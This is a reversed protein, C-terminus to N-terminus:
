EEVIALVDGASRRETNSMRRRYTFTTGDPRRAMETEHTREDVYPVDAMLDYVGSGLEAGVDRPVCNNAVIVDGPQVSTVAPGCVLVTYFCGAQQGQPRDLLDPIAIGAAKAHAWQDHRRAFVHGRLPRLTPYEALGTGHKGVPHLRDIEERMLMARDKELHTRDQRESIGAERWARENDYHAQGEPTWGNLHRTGYPHPVSYVKTGKM